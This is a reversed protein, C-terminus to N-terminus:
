DEIPEFGAVDGASLPTGRPMTRAATLGVVQNLHKPALGLGPRISRVNEQTLADGKAVDKVVYLSRRFHRGSVESPACEVDRNGLADFATRCGDVLRALEDPELSFHSDPGGDARRYTVHKEIMVAGLAVAAVAVDTGLTHDSLGIPLGFEAQMAPIRSLNAEAAPAPYASVCHLLVIDTAGAGRAANVAEWIEESTAMGTSIVLPKGTAAVKEILPLDVIEFSAIKYAPPDFQELFDVATFDFPSSFVEMGHDQGRRFLAEHWDWPTHADEYLASLSYGAWPGSDIQFEPRPSDITITDARYTQLKLADAGAEAAADVIKLATDLSGAHNASLEAVILPKSSSSVTKAGIIM